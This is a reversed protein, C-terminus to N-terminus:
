LGPTVPEFGTGGVMQRKLPNTIVMKLPQEFLDLYSPCKQEGWM